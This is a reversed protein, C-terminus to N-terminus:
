NERPGAIVEALAEDDTLNRVNECYELAASSPLGSAGCLSCTGIFPQGPGKASTRIIAHHRMRAHDTM